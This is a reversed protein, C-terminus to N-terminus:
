SEHFNEHRDFVFASTVLLIFPGFTLLFPFITAFGLMMLNLPFRKVGFGIFLYIIYAPAIYLFIHKFNLLTSFVIAGMLYQDKKEFHVIFLFTKM